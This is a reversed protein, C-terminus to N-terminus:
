RIVGELGDSAVVGLGPAGPDLVFFQGTVHGDKLFPQNPIPISVGGGGSNDITVSLDVLMDTYLWCGSMGLFDLRLPLRYGGFTTRSGGLILVAGARPRANRVEVAWKGGLRPGGRYAVAPARGNTGACGVGFRLLAPQDVVGADLDLITDKSSFVLKATPSATYIENKANLFYTAGPGVDAIATVPGKGPRAFLVLKGSTPDVIMLDGNQLGALLAAGGLTGLSLIPPASKTVTRTAGNAPDYEVITSTMGGRTHVYAKGKFIAVDFAGPLALVRTPSPNFFAMRYLGPNAGGLTILLVGKQAAMRQLRGFVRLAGGTRAAVVNGQLDLRLVPAGGISFGASTFLGNRDAPDVAVATAGGLVRGSAQKVQTAIGTRPDVFRLGDRLSGPREATVLYGYPVQGTAVAALLMPVLFRVQRARINM